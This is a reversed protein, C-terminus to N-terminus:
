RGLEQLAGRVVAQLPAGEGLREIAKEVARRGVAEPTGLGMLAAVAEGALSPAHAAPAAGATVQAHFGAVDLAAIPKDKLEVVIRQALKPGVGNARGVLAKDDRAIASALEGPTLVDLVSLAAKPGVGQVGQLIVFAQKEERGLFGFLRTGDERTVTHIYLTADDGVAPLRSLTRAGCIVIYGVGGVDVIAEEEGVEAVEGRLRGIM